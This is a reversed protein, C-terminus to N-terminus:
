HAGPDALSGSECFLYVAGSPLVQPQHRAKVLVQVYMCLMSSLVVLQPLAYILLEGGFFGCGLTVLSCLLHGVEGTMWSAPLFATNGLKPLSHSGRPCLICPKKDDGLSCYCDGAGEFLLSVILLCTSSPVYQACPIRAMSFVPVM